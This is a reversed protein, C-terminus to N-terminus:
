RYNMFLIQHRDYKAFYLASSVNFQPKQWVTSRTPISNTDHLVMLNKFNVESKLDWLIQKQHIDIWSAMDLKFEVKASIREDMQEYNKAITSNAWTAHPNEGEVELLREIVM